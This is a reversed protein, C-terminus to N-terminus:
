AGIGKLVITAVCSTIASVNIGNAFLMNTEYFPFSHTNLDAVKFTAKNATTLGDQLTISANTASPTVIIYAVSARTGEVLGTSDIYLTNSSKVNAM